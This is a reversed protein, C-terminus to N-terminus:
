GKWRLCLMTIDDSQENGDAFTKVADFVGDAMEKMSADKLLEVIGLTHSNGFLEMAKNEAETVGDTYLFLADDKQMQVSETQYSFDAIAGAPLNTCPKMFDTSGKTMLIPANHGANCYSLMGTEMDLVGCFLTCFMDQDNGNALESNIGSVIISPENSYRGVNRFLHGVVMMFLSAPVGKGSVDGILFFLKEDRMFFDFIDGGVEKAPVVLGYIDIDNRDPFAPFTKPLLGKQIQSAIHLDREMGAKKETTNRLDAIYRVLEQQMAVFSNRLHSIDSHGSVEPIKYSFDGNSIANAAEAIRGLPRLQWNVTLIICSVIALILLMLMTIVLLTIIMTMDNNDGLPVVCTVIWGTKAIVDSSMSSNGVDKVGVLRCMFGIVKSSDVPIEPAESVYKMILSSDRNYLFLGERDAVTIYANGSEIEKDAIKKLWDLNIDACLAGIVEGKENILPTLFTTVANHKANKSTSLTAVSKGKANIQSPSLTTFSKNKANIQSPMLTTVPSPNNRKTVYHPGSWLSIKKSKVIRICEDLEKNGYNGSDSFAVYAREIDPTRVVISDCIQMIAGSDAGKQQAILAVTKVVNEVNNINDEIDKKVVKEMTSMRSMNSVGGVIVTMVNTFSLGLIIMVVILVMNIRFSM